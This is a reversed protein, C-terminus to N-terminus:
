CAHDFNVQSPVLAFKLLQAIDTSGIPVNEGITCTGGNGPAFYLKSIRSSGNLQDGLSHERTGGGVVLVKNKSDGIKRLKELHAHPSEFEWPNSWVSRLRVRLGIGGCARVFPM